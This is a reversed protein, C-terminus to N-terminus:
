QECLNVSAVLQKISSTHLLSPQKNGERLTSCVPLNGNLVQTVLLLLKLNEFESIRLIRAVEMGHVDCAHEKKSITAIPTQIFYQPTFPLALYCMAVQNVTLRTAIRLNVTYSVCKLPFIVM